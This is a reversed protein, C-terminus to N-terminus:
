AIRYNQSPETIQFTPSHYKGPCDQLFCPTNKKKSVLAINFRVVPNRSSVSMLTFQGSIEQQSSLRHQAGAQEARGTAALISVGLAPVAFGEWGSGASALAFEISAESDAISHIGQYTIFISLPFHHQKRGTITVVLKQVLRRHNAKVKETTAWSATSICSPHTVQENDEEVPYLRTEPVTVRRSFEMFWMWCSLSNSKDTLLKEFAEQKSGRRLEDRQKEETVKGPGGGVALGPDDYTTEHRKERNM